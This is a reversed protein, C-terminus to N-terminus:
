RGYQDKLDEFHKRAEADFPFRETTRLVSLARSKEGALFYARALGNVADVQTPLIQLADLFSKEAEGYKKEATYASGQLVYPALYFRNQQIMQETLALVQDYQGLAYYCVVVKIADEPALNGGNLSRLASEDHLVSTYDGKSIRARELLRWYRLEKPRLNVARQANEYAKAVQSRALNGEGAWFYIAAAWNQGLVRAGLGVLILIVTYLAGRLVTLKREKGQEPGKKPRGLSASAKAAVLGLFALGAVKIVEGFVFKITDM